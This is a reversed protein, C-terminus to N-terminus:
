DWSLCARCAGIVDDVNPLVQAELSMASPIPSDLAGVRQVPGDLFALGQEAVIAAVEAGIGGVKHGEEAVVFHGTKEISKILTSEDIPRLSRLDIVEVDVGEDALTEAADLCVDVMRSYSALTVDNGPRRVVAGGLSDVNAGGEPVEGKKGYLLKHEVFLVPGDDRIAVRLMDRADSPTSPAVIKLGPVNMFLSELCQSHSAGYGRGGGAPTRIVMPVKVQGDYIYHLKAAHNVIQDVALTIFDMFMIEVVPRMGTMAAGVAAGVFSNESIPTEIVRESGFEDLLGATVGFAGGYVGIDEGMLIVSEDRQMEERLATRIAESYTMVSM